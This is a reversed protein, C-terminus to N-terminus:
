HQDVLLMEQVQFYYHFLSILMHHEGEPVYCDWVRPWHPWEFSCGVEFRPLYYLVNFVITGSWLRAFTFLKVTWKSFSIWLVFLMTLLTRDSPFARFCSHIASIFTFFTSFVRNDSVCTYKSLFNMSLSILYFKVSVDSWSNSLWISLIFWAKVALAFPISFLIFVFIWFRVAVDWVM